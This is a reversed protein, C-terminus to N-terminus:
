KWLIAQFILLLLHEALKEVYVFQPLLQFQMLVHPNVEALIILLDADWHGVKTFAVRCINDMVKLPYSVLLMSCINHCSRLFPQVKADGSYAQLLKLSKCSHCSLFGM